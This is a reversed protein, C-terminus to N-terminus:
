ARLTRFLSEIGHRQLHRWARRPFWELDLLHIGLLSPLAHRERTFILGSRCFYDHALARAQRTAVYDLHFGRAQLHRAWYTSPQCNIHGVGAQGPVGHTMVIVRATTLTDLIHPAHDAAIHEVVECTWALDPAIPPHFAGAAFDHQHVHGPIQTAAIADPHREIGLVDCGITQWFYAANGVGCGVDIMRRVHYRDRLWMWLAPYWTMPDGGSIFGGPRAIDM